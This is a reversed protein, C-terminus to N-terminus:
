RRTKSGGVSIAGLVLTSLAAILVLWMGLGTSSMFLLIVHVIGFVLLSGAGITGVWSTWRHGTIAGAILLGGLLPVLFLLFRGSGSIAQVVEGGSFVLGLGSLELATGATM